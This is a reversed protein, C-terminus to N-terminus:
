REVFIKGADGADAHGIVARTGVGRSALGELLKTLQAEPVAILLGGSTQADALILKDDETIGAGWGVKGEMFRLNARSGGPVSFRVLERV